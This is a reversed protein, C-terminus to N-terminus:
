SFKSSSEISSILGDLLRAIEELKEHYPTSDMYNLDHCLIFYYRVEELSTQAISYFKIKDNKHRKRFGEAINAPISVCARRLQSTLGYKESDPFKKTIEYIDLVLKHAKKWVMLDMFTLVKDKEM